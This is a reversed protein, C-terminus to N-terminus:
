EGKNKHINGIIEFDSVDEETIPDHTNDLNIRLRGCDDPEYYDDLYWGFLDIYINEWGCAFCGTYKGFSVVGKRSHYYKVIDGEYILNGNKDKLGTCQEVEWTEDNTLLCSFSEAFIIPNGTMYDYTDQADYYMQKEEKNWARFRFRDDMKNGRIKM